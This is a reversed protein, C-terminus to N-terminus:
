IFVRDFEDGLSPRSSRISLNPLEKGSGTNMNKHSMRASTTAEAKAFEAPMLATFGEVPSSSRASLRSLESLTRRSSTSIGFVKV